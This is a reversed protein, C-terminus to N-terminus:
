GDSETFHRDVQAIGNELITFSSLFFATSFYGLNQVPMKQFSLFVMLIM